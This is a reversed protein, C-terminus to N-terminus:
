PGVNLRASTEPARRKPNRGLSSIETYQNLHNVAYTVNTGREASTKRNGIDDFDYSYRYASDVAATANTLESRTNYRYAYTDPTTFASGSKDCGVRAGISDQLYSKNIDEYQM